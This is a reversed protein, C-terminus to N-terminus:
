GLPINTHTHIAGGHCQCVHLTAYHLFFLAVDELGLFWVFTAKRHGVGTIM